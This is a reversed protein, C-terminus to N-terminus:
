AAEVQKGKEPKKQLAAVTKRLEELQLAQAEQESKLRVNEERVASVDPSIPATLAKAKEVLDRATPGLAPALRAPDMQALAELTDIRSAELTKIMGPTLDALNALPTGGATSEAGAKWKDYHDRFVTLPHDLRGEGDKYALWDQTIMDSNAQKPPGMSPIQVKCVEFDKYVKRGALTSAHEAIQPELLFTYTAGDHRFSYTKLHM